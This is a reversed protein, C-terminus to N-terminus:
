IEELRNNFLGIMEEYLGSAENKSYGYVLIVDILYPSFKIESYRYAFAMAAIESLAVVCSEYHLFGISWLRIKEIKTYIEKKHKEEISHFIEHLLLIDDINIYGIIEKISDLSLFDEVRHIADMYVQIHNPEKFEAFLVRDTNEPVTQYEVEMNLVDALREASLNGYKVKLKDAWEMGCEWAKQMYVQRQNVSIRGDLPERSFVYRDWHLLPIKALEKLMEDLERREFEPRKYLVTRQKGFIGDFLPRLDMPEDSM